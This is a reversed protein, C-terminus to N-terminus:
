SPETPWTINDPFGSQAPVDRLAQRYAKWEDSLTTGAETALSVRWDTNTLLMDRNMRAADVKAAANAAKVEDSLDSKTWVQTWKGDKLVPTGQSIVEAEPNYSPSEVATVPYVGFSTLDCTGLQPFSTNPHKKQLGKLSLPYQTVAGDEILAFM